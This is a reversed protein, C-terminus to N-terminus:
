FIKFEIGGIDCEGIYEVESVVYGFFVWDGYNDFKVLGLLGYFNVEFLM